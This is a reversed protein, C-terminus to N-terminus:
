GEPEERAVCLFDVGGPGRHRGLGTIRYGKNCGPCSVAEKYALSDRADVSDLLEQLMVPLEEPHEGDALLREIGQRLEEAEGGHIFNHEKCYSSYVTCKESSRSAM